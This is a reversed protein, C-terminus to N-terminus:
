WSDVGNIKSLVRNISLSNILPEYEGKFWPHVLAEKACPRANPDKLLLHKVLDRAEQSYQSAYKRLRLGIDTLDCIKNQRMVIDHTEGNFLNRLTLMSYLISGTSFIDSKTTYGKLLIAEPSIYGPTGCIM